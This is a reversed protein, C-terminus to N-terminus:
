PGHRRVLARWGEWRRLLPGAPSGSLRGILWKLDSEARTLEDLREHPVSAFRSRREAKDAEYKERVRHVAERGKEREELRARRVADADVGVPRARLLRNELALLENEMRLADADQEVRFDDASLM